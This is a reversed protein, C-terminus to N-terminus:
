YSFFFAMFIATSFLWPFERSYQTLFVLFPRGHVSVGLFRPHGEDYLPSGQGVTFHAVYLYKVEQVQSLVGGV